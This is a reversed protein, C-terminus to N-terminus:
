IPFYLFKHEKLVYLTQYSKILGKFKDLIDAIIEHYHENDRAELDIEMQWPALTKAYDIVYPNMAIFAALEKERREGLPNVYLLTKYLQTGGKRHDLLLFYKAILGSKEFKKIKYSVTEPSLGAKKAIRSIPARANEALMALISRDNEDFVFPTQKVYPAETGVMYKLEPSKKDLWYGRNFLVLRTVIVFDYSAIRERHPALIDSVTKEIEMENKGVLGVLLDYPGDSSAVWHAKENKTITDIIGKEDARDSNLFNIHLRCYMFGLSSLNGIMRYGRLLGSSEMKGIRYKVSQKSLRVARAIESYSYRSNVDLNWLISRDFKDLKARSDEM